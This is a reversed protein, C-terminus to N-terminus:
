ILGSSLFHKRLANFQYFTKYEISYLLQSILLSTLIGRSKETIKEYNENTGIHINLILNLDASLILTSYRLM